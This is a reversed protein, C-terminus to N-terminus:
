SSRRMRKIEEEAMKIVRASIKGKQKSRKFRRQGLVADLKKPVELPAEYTDQMVVDGDFDRYEIKPNKHYVVDEMEVPLHVIPPVVRPEKPKSSQCQARYQPARPKRIVRVPATTVPILAPPPNPASVPVQADTPKFAPQSPRPYDYVKIMRPGGNPKREQEEAEPPPTVLGKPEFADALKVGAPLALWQEAGLKKAESQTVVGKGKGKNRAPANQGVASAKTKPTSPPSAWGTSSPKSKRAEEDAKQAALLYGKFQAEVEASVLSASRSPLKGDGSNGSSAAPSAPASAGDVVVGYRPRRAM